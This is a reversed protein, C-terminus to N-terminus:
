LPKVRKKHAHIFGTSKNHLEKFLDKYWWKM